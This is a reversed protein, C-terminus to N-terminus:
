ELAIGRQADTALIQVEEGVIRKDGGVNFTTICGLCV